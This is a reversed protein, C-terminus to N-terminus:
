VKENIDGSVLQTYTGTYYIELKHLARTLVVYFLKQEKKSYNEDSANSVIVADFELGKSLYSPIIMIKDEVFVKDDKKVIRFKNLYKDSTILQNYLLTEESNKCIIAVTNYSNKLELAREM